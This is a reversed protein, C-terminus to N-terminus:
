DRPVVDVPESLPIVRDTPASRESPLMQDVIPIVLGGEDVAAYWGPHRTLVAVNHDVATWAAVAAAYRGVLRYAEMLARWSEPDEPLVVTATHGILLDLRGTDVVAAAAKV